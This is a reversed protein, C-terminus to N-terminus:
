DTCARGARPRREESSTGGGITAHCDGSVGRMRRLASCRARGTGQKPESRARASRRMEICRPPTRFAPRAPEGRAGLARRGVGGDGARAQPRERARRGCRRDRRPRVRLDDVLEQLVLRVFSLLAAEAGLRADGEVVPVEVHERAHVIGRGVADHREQRPAVHARRRLLELEDDVRVVVLLGAVLEDHVRGAHLAVEGDGVVVVLVRRPVADPVDRRADVRDAPDGLEPDREALDAERRAGLVGEPQM